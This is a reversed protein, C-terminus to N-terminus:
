IHENTAYDGAYVEMERPEDTFYKCYIQWDDTDENICGWPYKHETIPTCYIAGTLLSVSRRTCKECDTLCREIKAM